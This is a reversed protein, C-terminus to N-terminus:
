VTFSRGTGLECGQQSSLNWLLPWSGGLLSHRAPHRKHGRNAHLQQRQRGRDSWRCVLDVLRLYHRHGGILSLLSSEAVFQILIDRRRAGLAKRLGIERTHETVSVLMINIIGIGGVLLSIAAIGGLFYEGTTPRDLRGLIYM